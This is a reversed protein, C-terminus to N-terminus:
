WGRLVYVVGDSGSKGFKGVANPANNGANSGGGGGAGYGTGANAATTPNANTETGGFDANGGGNGGTGIGSGGGNKLDGNGAGTYFSGNGGAGTTSNGNWSAFKRTTTNATNANTWIPSSQTATVLNGFSSNTPSTSSDTNTTAAVGKAGVTVTQATNSYVFGANIFGARGGANGAGQNFAGAIGRGGAAGGGIVLVALLGTTNYTGTATITDLTGNGIDDPALADATKEISVVTDTVSATITTLYVGTAPTALQFSATGSTTQGTVLTSSADVFSFSVQTTSPTVSVTYVGTEFAQTNLYTTEAVPLTAAFASAGAATDPAPFQAIGM